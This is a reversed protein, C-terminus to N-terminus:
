KKAESCEPCLDEWGHNTKRSKWRNDKDKKWQVAEGFSDFICPAEKGCCDCEIIYDTYDFGSGSSIM